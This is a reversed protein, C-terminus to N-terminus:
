CTKIRAKYAVHNINLAEMVNDLSRKSFIWGAGCSLKRNFRGGLNKLIDAIPKTEGIVAFAKESYDVIEIGSASVEEVKRVVEKKEPVDKETRETDVYYEIGGYLATFVTPSYENYDEYCNFKHDVFVSCTKRMEDETPGNVWKVKFTGCKNSVSFKLGPYHLKIYAVVNKKVENDDYRNDLVTLIGNYKKRLEESVRKSEQRKLEAEEQDKRIQEDAQRCLEDLEEQPKRYEPDNVDDWYLGIGFKKSLPRDHQGVNWYLYRHRHGDEVIKQNGNEDPKSICYFTGSESGGYGLVGYVRQGIDLTVKNIEVLQRKVWDMRMSKSKTIVDNVNTTFNKKEKM